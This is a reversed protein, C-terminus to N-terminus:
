RLTLTGTPRSGGRREEGEQGFRSPLRYTSRRHFKIGHQLSLRCNYCGRGTMPRIVYVCALTSIDKSRLAM